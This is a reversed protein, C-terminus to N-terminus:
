LSDQIIFLKRIGMKLVDLYQQSSGPPTPLFTPLTHFSPVLSLLSSLLPLYFAISQAPYKSNHKNSTRHASVVANM